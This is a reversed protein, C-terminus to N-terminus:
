ARVKDPRVFFPRPENVPAAVKAPAPKKTGWVMM